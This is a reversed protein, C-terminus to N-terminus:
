SEKDVFPSEKCRQAMANAAVINYLTQLQHACFRNVGGFIGFWILDAGRKEANIGSPRFMPMEFLL